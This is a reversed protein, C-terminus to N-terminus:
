WFQSNNFDKEIIENKIVVNNDVVVYALGDAATSNSGTAGCGKEQGNTHFFFYLIWKEDNFLTSTMGTELDLIRILTNTWLGSNQSPEFTKWNQHFKSFISSFMIGDLMDTQQRDVLEDQGSLVGM